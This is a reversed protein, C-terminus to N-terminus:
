ALDAFPLFPLVRSSHTHRIPIEIFITYETETQMTGRLASTEPELHVM